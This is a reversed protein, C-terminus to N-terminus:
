AVKEIIYEEIKKISNEFTELCMKQNEAREELVDIERTKIDAYAKLQDIEDEYKRIQETFRSQNESIQLFQEKMYEMLQLMDKMVEKKECADEVTTKLNTAESTFNNLRTNIETIKDTLFKFNNLVDTEKTAERSCLLDVSNKVRFLYM